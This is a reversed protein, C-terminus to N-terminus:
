LLKKEGEMTKVDTIDQTVELCGLYKGKESRIPFYRTYILKKDLNIWFEAADRRGARFDELIKNVVRVSKQPHCQQVKRGIVAKTRPFIREKTLSFYRVTDEKDVFTLDVPLANFIAEIEEQSLNGTKFALRGETEAKSAPHGPPAAIKEKEIAEKFLALHVGCLKHVEERPMGERILEEEIKAVEASSTDRILKKFEEKIKKSDEGQHLKRILSKLAEKKGSLENM